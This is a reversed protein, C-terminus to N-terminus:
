NSSEKRNREHRMKNRANLSKLKLLVSKLSKKRRHYLMEYHIWRIAHDYYKRNYTRKFDIDRDTSSEWPLDEVFLNEVESYLPTGKIPYAVTITYHDPNSTKLHNLTEEIDSEDEGPYGLMIFTGAEIGYSKVLQIMKRVDDVREQM